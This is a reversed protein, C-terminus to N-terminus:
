RKPTNRSRSTQFRADPLRAIFERLSATYLLTMRGHKIARIKGAALYRYIASRSLGFLHTATKINILIPENFASM